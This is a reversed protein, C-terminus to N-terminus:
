ADGVRYAPQLCVPQDRSDRVGGIATGRQYLESLEAARRDLVGGDREVVLPEGVDPHGFALRPCQRIGDLRQAAVRPIELAWYVGFARSVGYNHAKQTQERM